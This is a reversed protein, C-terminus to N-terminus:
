GTTFLEQMAKFKDTAIHAAKFEDYSLHLSLLNFLSLDLVLHAGLSSFVSQLRKFTALENPQRYYATLSGISQPSLAVVVINSSQLDEGM